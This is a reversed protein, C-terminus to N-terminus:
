ASVEATGDSLPSGPWHLVSPDLGRDFVVQANTLLLRNQTNRPIVGPNEDTRIDCPASAESPHATPSGEAALAFRPPSSDLM